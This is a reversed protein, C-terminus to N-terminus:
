RPENVVVTAAMLQYGGNVSDARLNLGLGTTPFMPNQLACIRVVMIQNSGGNQVDGSGLSSLTGNGDGCYATDGPIIWNATDVPKLWVKLESQCDKLIPTAECILDRLQDHTVLGLNGLRFQRMVLDLGREMSVHRIMYYGAEVSAMFIGLVVPIFIVFEITATGDERRWLRRLRRGLVRLPSQTM